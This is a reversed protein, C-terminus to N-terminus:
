ITGSEPWDSEGGRRAYNSASRQRRAGFGVDADGNAMRKAYRESLQGRVSLDSVRRRCQRGEAREAAPQRRGVGRYVFDHGAHRQPDARQRVRERHRDSARESVRRDRPSQRDCQRDPQRCRFFAVCGRFLHGHGSHRRHKSVCEVVRRERLPREARCLQPRAPRSHGARDPRGSERRWRCGYLDIAAAHGHAIAGLRGCFVVAAARILALLVTAHRSPLTAAYGM